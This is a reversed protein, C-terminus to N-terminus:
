EAGQGLVHTWLSEPSHWFMARENVLFIMRLAELDKDFDKVRGARGMAVFPEGDWIVGASDHV